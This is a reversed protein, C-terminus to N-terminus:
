STHIQYVSFNFSSTIKISVFPSSFTGSVFSNAGLPASGHTNNFTIASIRQYQTSGGAGSASVLSMGYISAGAADVWASGNWSRAFITAVAHNEFETNTIIYRASTPVITTFTTGSFILEIRALPLSSGNLRISGGSTIRMAETLTGVRRTSFVLDGNLQGLTRSTTQSGIASTFVPGGGSITSFALSNQNNVTTDNNRLELVYAGSIDTSPSFHNLLSFTRVTTSGIIASWNNASPQVVSLIEGGGGGGGILLKKGVELREISPIYKLGNQSVKLPQNTGAAVWVPYVLESLANDDTLTALQVTGAPGIPGDIIQGVWRGAPATGTQTWVYVKNGVIYRDGYAPSNPFDLPGSGSYITDAM